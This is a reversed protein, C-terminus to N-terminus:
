KSFFRPLDRVAIMGILDRISLVGVIKGDESVGLHRIGKSEMLETAVHVSANIDVDVIPTNMIVGVPIEAADLHYGIVKRVLDAETVIGTYIDKDTVVLSGIKSKAMQWAAERAPCSADITQINRHTLVTLPKIVDGMESMPGAATSLFCHVIDRVSIMGVVKGKESIALHRIENFYMLHNADMVSKEIDIEILPSGMVQTVPSEFSLDKTFVKRVLDSDTVVGVYEGAEEVFVSGIKKERMLQAADTISATSVIKIIERHILDSLTM